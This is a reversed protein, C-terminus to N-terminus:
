RPRSGGVGPRVATACTHVTSYKRNKRSIKKDQTLSLGWLDMLGSAYEFGGASGAVITNINRNAAFLAASMGAMGSGIIFLDTEFQERTQGGNM